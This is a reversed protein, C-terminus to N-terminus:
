YSTQSAKTMASGAPFAYEITVLDSVSLVSKNVKTLRTSCPTQKKPLTTSKITSLFDNKLMLGLQKFSFVSQMVEGGIETSNNQPFQYQLFSSIMEKCKKSRATM